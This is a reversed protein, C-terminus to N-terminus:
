LVLWGVCNNIVFNRFAYHNLDALPYYGGYHNCCGGALWFGGAEEDEALIKCTNALDCFGCIYRSGTPEFAHKADESDWYHGLEKSDNCVANWAWEVSKGEEILKKILVGLFAAYQLRTGLKLKLNRAIAKWWNHSKGVAPMKGPVFCIDTKRDDTFSPDCIPREFNKVKKEIAQLILRITKRECETKPEYQLFIDNVSLSDAEILITKIGSHVNKPISNAKETAAKEEVVVKQTVEFTGDALKKIEIIEGAQLKTVVIKEKM